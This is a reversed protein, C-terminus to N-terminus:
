PCTQPTSFSRILLEYNNVDVNNAGAVVVYYVRNTVAAAVCGNSVATGDVSIPSGADDLIAVDLDGFTIDYFIEAQLTVAGSPSTLDVKYWDVDHLGTAPNNGVPCIALKIIKPTPQDPTPTPATLAEAPSDNPELNADPCDAANDLGPDMHPGTYPPGSKPLTVPMSALDPGLSLDQGSSLDPSTSLDATRNGSACWAAVQVAAAQCESCSACTVKSGDSLAYDGVACGGSTSSACFQYARGGACSELQSCTQNGSSKTCGVLALILILRRM